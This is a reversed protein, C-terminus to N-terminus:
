PQETPMRTAPVNAATNWGTFTYGPLAFACAPLTVTDTAQVEALADMTGTARDKTSASGANLDFTIDYVIPRAHATITTAGTVTITQSDPNNPKFGSPM